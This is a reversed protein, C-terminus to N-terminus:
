SYKFESLDSNEKPNCDLLFAAILIWRPFASPSIFDGSLLINADSISVLSFHPADMSGALMLLLSLFVKVSFFFFSFFFSFSFSFVAFPLFKM